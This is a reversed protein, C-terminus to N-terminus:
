VVKSSMQTESMIYTYYIKLTLEEPKARATVSKQPKFDNACLGEGLVFIGRVRIEDDYLVTDRKWIDYGCIKGPRPLLWMCLVKHQIRSSLGAKVLNEEARITKKGINRCCGIRLM